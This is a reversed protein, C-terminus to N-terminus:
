HFLPSCMIERQKMLHLQIQDISEGIHSVQATM